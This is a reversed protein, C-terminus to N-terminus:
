RRPTPCRSRPRADRRRARAGGGQGHGPAPARGRRAAQRHRDVPEPREAPEPLGRRHAVGVARAAQRASLDLLEVGNLRVSGETVRGNSALYRIAGMALTSKGSGSEGVLGFSEHEHVALSVDRVAHLVGLETTTTSTCARSRSSPAAPVGDTGGAAAAAHGPAARREDPEHLHRAPRHHLRPLASTWPAISFFNRAENIQLGWDPSPPQVGLGLFGLSAVLFISYSFRMSAEVLLPPLSNPLIERFLM